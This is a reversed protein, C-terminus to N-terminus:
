SETRYPIVAGCLMCYVITLEEGGLTDRALEHWALVRKPYARAEGNVVLGFVVHKDKLYRAEDAPLHVPHDLLPIGDVPVGGWDVQDLRVTTAVGAPLLAEFRPDIQGLVRGKFMAYDPHPDHPQSWLWQRWRDLDDGFNEGTQKEVFRMLRRRVPSATAAGAPAAGFSSGGPQDAGPLGDTDGAAAPAAATGAPQDPRLLRAVDIFMATYGDRWSRAIQELAAAADAEDPSAAQIFLVIDPHETVDPTAPGATVLFIVLGIVFPGPRAMAREMSEESM